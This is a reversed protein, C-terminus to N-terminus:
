KKPQPRSAPPIIGNMRLYEVMQGYHDMGHFSILNAIGILTLNGEMFPNKVEKTANAVTLSRIAKTSYAFSEKMFKLIEAKTKLNDPGMEPNGLEVPPKEGLIISGLFYNIASVHKVQQAFTKVGKFEGNTPAFGYKDEPMAEAAGMFENVVWQYTGDMAQGVTADMKKPAAKAAAKKEAPKAAAMDQAALPAALSLALMLPMTRM